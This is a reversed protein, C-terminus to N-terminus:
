TCTPPVSLRSVLKNSRWAQAKEVEDTQNSLTAAVPSFFFVSWISGSTHLNHKNVCLVNGFFRHSEKDEEEM